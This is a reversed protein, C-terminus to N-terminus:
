GLQEEINRITPVLLAVLGLVIMGVGALLYWITVGIADTAPGAFALGVPNMATSVASILTFFRGQMEPPVKTQLIAFFSGNTVPLMLGAFFISVVAYNFMDPPMLGVGMIGVGCLILAALGTIIGKQFGGWVGLLLGGVVMGVGLASQMLAFDNAGGGFYVTVLIPMLSAAPAVLLNIGMAIGGVYLIGRWALIYRVAEAMDEFVSRVGHKKVTVEPQPISIFFVPVIAMVATVVDILLIAQLSMAALLYAGLPPAVIISFGSLAQFLGSTRPLQSKDVMLTTSAQMAAWHFASAMARIFMIVYIHWVEMVGWSNVLMLLVTFASVFADAAMMVRRRNWRDVLVGAIPSLFVEPIIAMISAFALVSASGTNETLWWVLAFQVLKSGVWSFVQGTFMVLFSKMSRGSM